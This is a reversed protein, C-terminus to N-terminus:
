ETPNDFKWMQSEDCNEGKPLLVCNAMTTNTWRDANVTNSIIVDDKYMSYNTTRMCTLYMGSAKNKLRCCGNDEDEAIWLQYEDSENAAKLVIEDGINKGAAAIAMGSSGTRSVFQYTNRAVAKGLWTHHEFSDYEWVVIPQNASHIGGRPALSVVKGRDDLYSAIRIDELDTTGSQDITKVATLPVNNMDWLMLKVADGGIAYELSVTENKDVGFVNINTLAGANNYEAVYLNAESVGDPLVVDVSKVVNGDTVVNKINDDAKVIADFTKFITHTGFTIEATLRVEKKGIKPVTVKGDDTIVSEDSSKWTISYGDKEASATPLTIDEKINTLSELQVDPAIGYIEIDDILGSAWEGSGWNAKGIYTIPSNGLMDAIKFNYEKESVFNGDVYLASKKEGVVLTIDQWKGSTYSYEASETRAGSNNYREATIKSGSDLIGLYHEKQYTQTNDNPSAYFWWSTSNDAKKRFTVTIENKDKLLSSGDSNTLSLYNGTGGFRAAYTGNDSKEYTISGNLSAKGVEATTNQNDFNMSFLLKDSQQAMAGIPILTAAIVAAMVASIQKKAKM